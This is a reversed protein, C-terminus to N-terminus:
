AGFRYWACYFAATLLSLVGFAGLWRAASWRSGLGALAAAGFLVPPGVLWALLLGDIWLPAECHGAERCGPLTRQVTRWGIRSATYASAWGVLLSVVIAGGVVLWRKV